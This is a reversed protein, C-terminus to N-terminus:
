PCDGNVIGVADLDFSGTFGETDPRDTVRVFRVQSLGLQALDFADGGSVSPDLVESNDIAAVPTVGACQDYPANVAECPYGFWTEGDDSVEVTALEAFVGAAHEFPNEFVVFDPGPGDVIVDDGFGLVIHGGNGLSVVDTSGQCCGAGHPPGFVVDPMADRGFAQGTGYSVEIVESAFVAGDSCM